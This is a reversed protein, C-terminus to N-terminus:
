VPTEVFANSHVSQKSKPPDDDQINLSTVSGTPTAFLDSESVTSQRRKLYSVLNIQQTEKPSPPSSDPSPPPSNNLTHQSEETDNQEEITDLRVLFSNRLSAASQRRPPTSNHTGNHVTHFFLPNYVTPFDGVNIIM